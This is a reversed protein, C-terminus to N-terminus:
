TPSVPKISSPVLAYDSPLNGIFYNELAGGRNTKKRRAAEIIIVGSKETTSTPYVQTLPEVLRLYDKTCYTGPTM